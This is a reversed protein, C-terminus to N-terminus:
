VGNWEGDSNGATLNLFNLLRELVLTKLNQKILDEPFSLYGIFRILTQRSILPQFCILDTRFIGSDDM